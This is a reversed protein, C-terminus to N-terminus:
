TKFGPPQNAIHESAENKMRAWADPDSGTILMADGFSYFRYREQIAEAYAADILPKGAFASVLMLLTSRPLHFNTILADMAQFRHGPMIFLDTWGAYPAVTAGTPANRAASELVRASTTGVAVVRGNRARTANIQGAADESLVAYERHIQHQRPDEEEIPRFTDLGVHLTVFAFGSTGKELRELLARTFHLGATPAAASGSVKAYVTQYREADQLPEHIYPPLPMVGCAEVAAEDAFRLLRTGGEGRGEVLATYLRTASAFELQTGTSLRRGPRVLCVWHGDTERHLLLVEVAGGSRAKKGLLRAPIVRSDNFVLLDRPGLLHDLDYFRSHQMAGTARDLVLLRSHDRPEIPVQAILEPPLAYNFDSMNLPM